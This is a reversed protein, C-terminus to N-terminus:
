LVAKTPSRNTRYDPGSPDYVIKTIRIAALAPSATVALVGALAIALKIYRM